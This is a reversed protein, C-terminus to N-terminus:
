DSRGMSLGIRPRGARARDTDVMKSAIREVPCARSPDLGAARRAPVYSAAAGVMYLALAVLVYVVPSSAGLGPLGAALLPVAVATLAGGIAIGAGAVFAPQKRLARLSYRIDAFISELWAWGWTARVEERALTLNGLEKSGAIYRHALGLGGADRARAPPAMCAVSIQTSELDDDIRFAM